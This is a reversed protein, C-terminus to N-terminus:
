NGLIYLIGSLPVTEETRLIVNRSLMLEFGYIECLTEIYKNTHAFRASTLLQVGWGPCAGMPENDVLLHNNLTSNLTNNLASNSVACNSDFFSSNGSNEGVNERHIKMPSKDLDEISFAFLGNKNLSKKIKNFISGLGGIYIFTDAVLILDFKTCINNFIKQEDDNNLMSDNSKNIDFKTNEGNNNSSNSNNSNNSADGDVSNGGLADLAQGM